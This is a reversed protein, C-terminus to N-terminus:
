ESNGMLTKIDEYHYYIIGGVKNYHLTGNDRLTQLTGPSVNLLKRVESSKLWPRDPVNVNQSMLEKFDKLLQLRFDQLDALTVLQNRLLIVKELNNDTRKVAHINM